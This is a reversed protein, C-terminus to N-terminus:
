IIQVTIQLYQVSSFTYVRFAVGWGLTQVVFQFVPFGRGVVTREPRENKRGTLRRSKLRVQRGTYRLSILEKWQM